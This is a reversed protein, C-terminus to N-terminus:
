GHVDRIVLLDAVRSSRKTHSELHHTHQNAHENGRQYDLAIARAAISIAGYRVAAIARIFDNRGIVAARCGFVLISVVFNTAREDRGSKNEDGYVDTTNHTDDKADLFMATLENKQKVM